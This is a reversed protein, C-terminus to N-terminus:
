DLNYSFSFFFVILFCPPFTKNWGSFQSIEKFFVKLILALIVHKLM